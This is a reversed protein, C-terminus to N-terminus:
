RDVLTPENRTLEATLLEEETEDESDRVPLPLFIALLVGGVGLWVPATRAWTPRGSEESSAHLRVGDIHQEVASTITRMGAQAKVPSPADVRLEGFGPTPFRDNCDLNVGHPLKVSKAVGCVDDRWFSAPYVASGPAQVVTDIPLSDFPTVVDAHTPVITAITLGAIVAVIAGAVRIPSWSTRFPIAGRREAAVVAFAAIIWFLNASGALSFLDFAAGGILGAVIGAVAAASVLRDWGPPGRLGGISSALLVIMLAGLAAAGIVGLEAYLLLWSADTTPFGMPDLGNFGLGRYPRHRVIDTIEPLRTSRIQTSNTQREGHFPARISPVGFWLLGGVALAVLGITTVRRNGGFLVIIAAIVALGPLASRSNSWYIALVLAFPVLRLAWRKTRLAVVAVLPLAMAGIWAFQLAFEAAARVRVGGGRVSLPTANLVKSTGPMKELVLKAWSVGTFRELIAIGAMIGVIVAFSRAVRWTNGLGRLVAVVVVFVLFQDVIGLWTNVASTTSTLPAALLVGNVLAVAVFVFFAAHVATPRWVDSSIERRRIGIAVRLGLAIIALRHLTLVSVLANPLTLAAPLLVIVALYAVLARELPAWVIYGLAAVLVATVLPAPM